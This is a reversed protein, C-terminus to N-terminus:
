LYGEVEDTEEVKSGAPANHLELTGGLGSLGTNESRQVTRWVEVTEPQTSSKPYAAAATLENISNATNPDHPPKSSEASGPRTPIYRVWADKFDDSHYVNASRRKRPGIAFGKLTRAVWHPTIPRGNRWEAWPWVENESLRNVLESSAIEEDRAKEFIERINALLRTGTSAGDDANRASSLDIAAARAKETWEGGAADAIALLPRWCDQARDDLGHPMVPDAGHLEDLHDMAWRAAKTQLVHLDAHSKSSFRQGKEHPMCRRLAIVISRDQLTDPLTGILALVKPCWTHFRRPEHNDGVTRIVYASDHDFGSNLVGRMEENIRAFTEAEDLLFTPHYTEICRFLSATTTNSALLAKPVLQRVILMLTTKGCRKEPSEIALIPSHDAADHCHAFVSWLAVAASAGRPLVMFKDLARSIEALLDAGDVPHDCPVVPQMFGNDTSSKTSLARKRAAKVAKDLITVTLGLRKAAERRDRDYDLHSLQALAEIDKESAETAEPIGSARVRLKANASLRRTRALLLSPM